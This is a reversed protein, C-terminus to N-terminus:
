PERNKAAILQLRAQIEARPVWTGRLMVGLPERLAAIDELPNGATLILDADLGAHIQGFTDQKGLFRAANITGTTLAEAPTLGAEVLLQLERHTSFGPVNLIQPADAGLLLGAGADHLAKVLAKRYNLFIAVAHPDLNKQFGKAASIWGNVTRHPMYQLGLEAADADIPAVFKEAMSLTPVNWVGADRTAEAVTRFKAADIFPTLPAGLLGYDIDAVDADDRLLAPWYADLHDITPQGFELARQLGAAATVHGVFPIDRDASTTAVADYVVRSIGMHVKIFDYGAEQQEIVLRSAEEGTKIKKGIFPPGATFLRPGLIEQRALRGRLELHSPEGNMGRITTIGHAAWLFLVDQMYEDSAPQHPVHAHMEALGAVLYAGGADILKAGPPPQLSATPGVAIIKTGSVVVTRHQDIRGQEPRVLNVDAFAISPTSFDDVEQATGHPAIGLLILAIVIQDLSKM